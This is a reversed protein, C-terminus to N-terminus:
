SDGVYPVAVSYIITSCHLLAISFIQYMKSYDIMSLMRYPKQDAPGRLGSTNM